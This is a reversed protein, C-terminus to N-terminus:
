PHFILQNGGPTEHLLVSAPLVKEEMEDLLANFHRVLTARDRAHVAREGKVPTRDLSAFVWHGDPYLALRFNDIQWGGQTRALQHGRNVIYKIRDLISPM